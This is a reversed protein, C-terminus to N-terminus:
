PTKDGEGGERGGEEGMPTQRTLPTSPPSPRLTRSLLLLTEGAPQGGVSFRARALLSDEKESVKVSARVTELPLIPRVFKAKSIERVALRSNLALEAAVRAMELQFVGPLMPRHPFHGAFLPDDARFCFEVSFTGDMEQVPGQTRAAMITTRMSM